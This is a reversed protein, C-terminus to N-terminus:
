IGSAVPAEECDNKDYWRRQWTSAEIAKSNSGYWYWPREYLRLGNASKAQSLKCKLHMCGPHLSTLTMGAQLSYRKEM